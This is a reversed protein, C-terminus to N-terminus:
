RIKAFQGRIQGFFFVDFFHSRRAVSKPLTMAWRAFLDIPIEITPLGHFGWFGASDYNPVKEEFDALPDGTTKDCGNSPWSQTGWPGVPHVWTWPGGPGGRRSRWLSHAARGKWLERHIGQGPAIFGFFVWWESTFNLTKTGHFFTWVM